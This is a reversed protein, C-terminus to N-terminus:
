DTETKNIRREQRPSANLKHQEKGVASSFSLSPSQSQSFSISNHHHGSSVSHSHSHSITLAPPPSLDAKETKM